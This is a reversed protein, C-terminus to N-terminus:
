LINDFVYSTFFMGMMEVATDFASDLLPSASVSRCMVILVPQM